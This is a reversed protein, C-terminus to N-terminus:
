SNRQVGDGEGHRVFFRVTVVLVLVAAVVFVTNVGVSIAFM